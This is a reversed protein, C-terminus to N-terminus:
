TKETQPPGGRWIEYAALALVLLGVVVFNASAIPISVALIWPAAILWLGLLVNIWEEAVSFASLTVLETLIVLIGSIVAARTAAPALDFRLAWPSICLWIGLGWSCWDEWQQPPTFRMAPM